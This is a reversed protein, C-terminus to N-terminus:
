RKRLWTFGLIAPLHEDHIKVMLWLWSLWTSRRRQAFAFNFVLFIVHSVTPSVTFISYIDVRGKSGPIDGPIKSSKKPIEQSEQGGRHPGQVSIELCFQVNLSAHCLCIIRETPYILPDTDSVYLCPRQWNYCGGATLRITKDSM